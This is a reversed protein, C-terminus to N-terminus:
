KKSYNIQPLRVKETILRHYGYKRISAPFAPSLFCLSSLSPIQQHITFEGQHRTVTNYSIHAPFIEGWFSMCTDQKTMSHRPTTTVLLTNYSIVAQMVSFYWVFIFQSVFQQCQQMFMHKSLNQLANNCTSIRSLLFLTYLRIIYMTIHRLNQIYFFTSYFM